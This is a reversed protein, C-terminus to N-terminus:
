HQRKLQLVGAHPPGQAECEQHSPDRIIPNIPNTELEIELSTTDLMSASDGETLGYEDDRDIEIDEDFDAGIEDCLEDMLAVDDDWNDGSPEVDDGVFDEADADTFGDTDLFGDDEDEFDDSPPVYEGGDSSEDDSDSPPRVSLFKHRCTPCSGHYGRIWESLDERCFVHGCGLLKTVAHRLSGPDSDVLLSFPVLCIPCTEDALSAVEADSLAPLSEIALQIREQVTLLEDSDATTM